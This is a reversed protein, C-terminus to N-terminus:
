QNDRGFLSRFFYIISQWFGRKVPTPSPNTLPSNFTEVKKPTGNNYELTHKSKYLVLKEGSFGAISYEIEERILPNGQDVHGGFPEINDLLLKQPDIPNISHSKDKTHWFIPDIKDKTNWYIRLSNLKHSGKLCKNNIILYPEYQHLSHTECGLLVINPFKDLNVIKVCRDVLHSNRPIIDASITSAFFFMGSLSLLTYIFKKVM